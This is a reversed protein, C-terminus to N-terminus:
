YTHIDLLACYLKLITRSGVLILMRLTLIVIYHTEIAGFLFIWKQFICCAGLVNVLVCLFYQFM